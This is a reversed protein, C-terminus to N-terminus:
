RDRHLISQNNHKVVAVRFVDPIKDDGQLAIDVATFYTGDIKTFVAAGLDKDSKLNKIVADRILVLNDM